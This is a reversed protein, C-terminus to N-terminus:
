GQTRVSCSGLWCLTGPIPAAQAMPPLSCSGRGTVLRPTITAAKTTTNRAYLNWESRPEKDQAYTSPFSVPPSDAALSPLGLWAAPLESDTPCHHFALPILQGSELAGVCGEGLLHAGLDPFFHLQGGDFQGDGCPVALQVQSYTHRKLLLANPIQSLHALRCM